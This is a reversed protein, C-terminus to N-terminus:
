QQLMGWLFALGVLIMLVIWVTGLAIGSWALLKGKEAGEKRRIERLALIGTVVAAIMCFNRLPILVRDILTIILDHATLGLRLLGFMGAMSLLSLFGSVFSVIALRNTPTPTNM